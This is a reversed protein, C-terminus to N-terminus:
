YGSFQFKIGAAKFGFDSFADPFGGLIARMENETLYNQDDVSTTSHGVYIFTTLDLLGVNGNDLSIVLFSQNPLEVISGVGFHEKKLESSSSTRFISM